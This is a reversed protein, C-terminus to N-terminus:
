PVFLLTTQSSKWIQGLQETYQQLYKRFPSYMAQAWEPDTSLVTNEFHPRM